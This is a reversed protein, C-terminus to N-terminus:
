CRGRSQGGLAVAQCARGYEMCLAGRHLKGDLESGNRYLTVHVPTGSNIESSNSPHRGPDSARESNLATALFADMDPMPRLVSPLLMEQLKAGISLFVMDGVNASIGSQPRSMSLM